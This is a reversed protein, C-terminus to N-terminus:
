ADQAQARTEAAAEAWWGRDCNCAGTRMEGSRACGERHLWGGVPCGCGALPVAGIARASAPSNTRAVLEWGGGIPTRSEYWVPTTM